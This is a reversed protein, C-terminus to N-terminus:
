DIGLPLLSLLGRGTFDRLCLCNGQGSTVSLPWPSTLSTIIVDYCTSQKSALLHCTPRKPSRYNGCGGTRGNVLGIKVVEM